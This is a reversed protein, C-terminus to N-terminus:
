PKPGYFSYVCPIELRYGAGRNIKSGVVKVFGSNTDRSLFASVFPALNFPVHGVIDAEKKVAVANRDRDDTSERKLIPEENLM